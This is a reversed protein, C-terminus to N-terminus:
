GSSYCRSRRRFSEVCRGTKLWQYGNCIGYSLYPCSNVGESKNGGPAHENENLLLFCAVFRNRDHVILRVVSCTMRYDQIPPQDANVKAGGAPHM